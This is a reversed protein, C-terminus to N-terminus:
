KDEGEGGTLLEPNEHVNGVVETNGEIFGTKTYPNWEGFVYKGDKADFNKTHWKVWGGQKIEVAGRWEYLGAVCKVIDGAYIETDNKDPLGTSFEIEVEQSIDRLGGLEHWMIKGDPMLCCQGSLKPTLYVKEAKIWVRFKGRMM